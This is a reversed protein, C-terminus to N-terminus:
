SIPQIMAAAIPDSMETEVLPGSDNTKDPNNYTVWFIDANAAVNSTGSESNATSTSGGAGCGVLSITLLFLMTHRVYRNM